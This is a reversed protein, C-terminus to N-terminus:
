LPLSIDELRFMVFTMPMSSEDCPFPLVNGAILFSLEYSVLLPNRRPSTEDNSRTLFVEFTGNLNYQCSHMCSSLFFGHVFCGKKMSSHRRIWAM